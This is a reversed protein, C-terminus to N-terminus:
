PNAGLMEHALPAADYIKTIAEIMARSDVAVARAEVDSYAIDLPLSQINGDFILGVVAGSRDVVPSGSNGGIIDCTSVFDYPTDQDVASKREMWRKPVDFPPLGGRDASRQYLGGLKTFPAVHKGGEDYGKVTGYSLRLTFTADPYVDEGEALFKASAIKAYAERQPGDVEDELRKRLARAEPDLLKAFRILPDKSADIAAKGGEYLARRAAVDALTTGQIVEEARARPSKGDLATQVIRDDYGLWEAMLSLGSQVREIELDTYIPAPSFLQFELTPLSGDSYEALRESSPKPKEDALRVLHRAIGFLESGVGNIASNRAYLERAVDQAKAVQEWANGWKAALEPKSWVFAMLKHDSAARAEIMSPDQLGAILGTFAKRSNQVGFFEDEAIRRWEESRDSFNKLQVERRWLRALAKPYRVDRLYKLHDATYLRETRGPHGAVFVLDNEACGNKSWALYHEPKLPQGGEDYIRFFCCDLDYRPYEFNDPDGGFFAAQKEPAFVLRLDTYRKYRYLHYRGGQYLTVVESKLKTTKFSEDQIKSMEQRKALGSEAANTASKAAAEVRDTVDVIEWLCVLELDPCPVEEAATKAYFGNAILDKEPTSLKFLIDAGVHHNTMVLGNPSVISGSGGTSFRVCSKQLHELWAKTADFGYKEKLEKSPPHNFLWMGEDAVAAGAAVAISVPLFLSAFRFSM